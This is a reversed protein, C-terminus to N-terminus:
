EPAVMRVAARTPDPLKITKSPATSHSRPTCANTIRFKFSSMFPPQQSLVFIYHYFSSLGRSLTKAPHHRAITFEM